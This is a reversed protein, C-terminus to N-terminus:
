PGYHMELLKAIFEVTFKAETEADCTVMLPPNLKGLSEAEGKQLQGDCMQTVLFYADTREQEAPNSCGM